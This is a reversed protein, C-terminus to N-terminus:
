DAHLALVHKPLNHNPTHFRSDSCLPVLTNRVARMRSHSRVPCGVPKLNPRSHKRATKGIPQKSSGATGNM